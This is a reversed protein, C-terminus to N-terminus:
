KKRHILMTIMERLFTRDGPLEELLQMAERSYEEVAAGAAEMGYLTVYTTQENRDDSGVPKGLEQTTSTVDLIDDQIQFAMGVLYGIREMQQLQTEDAGALAAGAM